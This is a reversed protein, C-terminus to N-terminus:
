TVQSNRAVHHQETLCCTQRALVFIQFLFSKGLEQLVTAVAEHTGGHVKKRIQLAEELANQAKTTKGMERAFKGIKEFTIAVKESEPLRLQRIKLAEELCKLAKDLRGRNQHLFAMNYLTSAVDLHVYGLVKRRAQLSEEFLKMAKKHQGFMLYMCGILHLLSAVKEKQHPVKAVLINLAKEYCELGEEQRGSISSLVGEITLVDADREAGGDPDIEKLQIAQEFNDIAKLLFSFKNIYTLGRKFIWAVRTDTRVKMKTVFHDAGIV